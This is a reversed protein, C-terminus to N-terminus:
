TPLCRSLGPVGFVLKYSFRNVM